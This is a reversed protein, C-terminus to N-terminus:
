AMTDKVTCHLNSDDHGRDQVAVAVNTTMGETRYRWLLMVKKM